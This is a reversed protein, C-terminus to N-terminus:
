HDRLSRYFLVVLDLLCLLCGSLAILYCVIISFACVLRILGDDKSSCSSGGCVECKDKDKSDFTVVSVCLPCFLCVLLSLLDPICPFCSHVKLGVFSM